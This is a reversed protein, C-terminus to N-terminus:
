MMKVDNLDLEVQPSFLENPMTSNHRTDNLQLPSESNEVFSNSKLSSPQKPSSSDLSNESKFFQLFRDFTSKKKSTAVLDSTSSSGSKSLEPTAVTTQKNM